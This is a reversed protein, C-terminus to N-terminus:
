GKIKKKAEDLNEDFDENEQDFSDSKPKSSKTKNFQVRRGDGDSDSHPESHGARQSVLPEASEEGITHALSKQPSTIPTGTTTSSPSTTISTDFSQTRSSEKSDRRKMIPKSPAAHPYSQSRHAAILERALLFVFM